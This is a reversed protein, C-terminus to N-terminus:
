DATKRPSDSVRVNASEDGLRRQMEDRMMQVDEDPMMLAWPGIMGLLVNRWNKIQEANLRGSVFPHLCREPLDKTPNM